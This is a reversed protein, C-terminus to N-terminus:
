AIPPARSSNLNLFLSIPISNHYSCYISVLRFYAFLQYPELFFTLSTDFSEEEGENEQEISFEASFFDQTLTLKPNEFFLKSKVSFVSSPSLVSSLFAAICFVIFNFKRM